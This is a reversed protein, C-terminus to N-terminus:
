PGAVYRLEQRVLREVESRLLNLDVPKAIYATFGASLAGERASHPASGTFAVIPTIAFREDQRLESLAGHGDLVPMDLDLIILDPLLERANYVAEAGDSAEFVSYGSQELVTRILERISASDDAVLVKKMDNGFRSLSSSPALAAAPQSSRFVVALRLGFSKRRWQPM